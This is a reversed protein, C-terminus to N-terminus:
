LLLAALSFYFLLTFIDTFALTVPGAAIKPDLRLAHLAAPVSLGFFCAACLALLISAGITFGALVTGRWLWVILGVVMGCGAGLLVATGAERRFARIYWGFSPRAARLAQITVTMSQISVSEGLGLVLALFFALVISKALTVAYVSALLACFTGSAITALLWPFRFRFARLPSAGHVQSVRFGISEFLADTQEREAIDFAEETLLGVDVVGVIKRAQDVVPLALFRHLVFAECAELVTATDPIAVVRRLMLESLRRELPATLLQRTPLVGALRDNTDVVYFYVIKEGIGQRRIAELAQQVTFDERLIAADKRAVALVPQHLHDQKDTM